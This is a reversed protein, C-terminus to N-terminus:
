EFEQPWSTNEGAAPLVMRLEEISVLLAAFPCELFGRSTSNTIRELWIDVSLFSLQLGM